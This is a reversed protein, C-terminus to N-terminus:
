PAVEVGAEKLLRRAESECDQRADEKRQAWEGYSGRGKSATLVYRWAGPEREHQNGDDLYALAWGDPGGLMLHDDDWVLKAAM